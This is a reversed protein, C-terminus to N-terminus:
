VWFGLVGQYSGENWMYWYDTTNKGFAYPKDEMERREREGAGGSGRGGKQRDRAASLYSPSVSIDKKDSAPDRFRTRNPWHILATVHILQTKCSVTRKDVVTDRSLKRDLVVKSRQRIYTSLSFCVVSAPPCSRIALASVPARAIALIEKKSM